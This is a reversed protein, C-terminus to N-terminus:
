AHLIVAVITAMIALNTVLVVVPALIAVVRGSLVQDRLRSALLVTCLGLLAISWIFILTAQVM